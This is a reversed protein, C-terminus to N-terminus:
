KMYTKTVNKAIDGEIIIKFKNINEYENRGDSAIKTKEVVRRTTTNKTKNKIKDYFKVNYKWEIKTYTEGFKKFISM